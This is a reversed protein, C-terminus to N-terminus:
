KSRVSKFYNSFFLLQYRVANAWYNWDHKGPREIYDHPIKLAMMKQHVARSMEILFDDVGCDVIVAISDPPYKEMQKM